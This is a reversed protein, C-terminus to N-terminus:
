NSLALEMYQTTMTDTKILNEPTGQFYIKGGNVGAGPGMEIIWDASKLIDMQHEIIILSNGLEVLKQLLIILRKIDHRHLGTTPEDLLILNHCNNKKTNSIYKVLKVRQSEGGSLTNIPQGLPLYGLGVDNLTKFSKKIKPQDTFFQIAEDVTLNLVDFISKTKWKIKLIEPKFRKGNCSECKVYVDAMFQMEVHEYGLGRCSECRGDGSNFSFHSPTLGSSISDNTSAFLTRIDDWANIYLAPNSRPTKSVPSQDVMVIEDIKTTCKISDFNAPADTVKGINSLFGQYIVNNLLTSKGSGSVGSICVFRNLPISLNLKSINHKNANSIILSPSINKNTLKKSKASNSFNISRRNIPNNIKRDGSLYSGTISRKSKIIQKYNGKFVIEGGLLGPKPGIEIIYDAASIISEDHEVVIVTNNQDTLRRLIELLKEIDCSHLGISPEDLVFLTDVLSTGLCATLNVREVEGGSLTRSQRDLTLYGLGVKELYDLRNVISEAAVDAQHNGTLKNKDNIVKLLKTIPFNYLEPLTFNNWKWYLSDEKLRSGKCQPCKVYSRFKSLFVRIHMKYTNSELWDFFKKVGYWGQKKTQYDQEGDFIFNLQKQSLRVYPIKTPIKNAKCAKLLDRLSESYVSGQFARIAGDELSISHDPIVLKYDIEIVRGFGRCKPCAGVPSNFTFQAATPKSYKRGSVKSILDKSFHALKHGDQDFIFIEHQGLKIVSEVSEIFRNQNQKSCKLRDQIVHIHNATKNNFNVDDIKQIKNSIIIRNYGQGKLSQIIESWSLNDPKSIKFSIILSKNKFNSYSKKWISHPNDNEIKDGSEPDILEAVHCFWVKFFDCLETMTGVTSRSTKVTNSQQIAISPRINEISDVKPRDLMEMFQRAYPSFTEVYRRQGEAHLTDFVLSSKGSGSLGTVVILKGLPIDLDFGKLNNQHAGKLNIFNSKM